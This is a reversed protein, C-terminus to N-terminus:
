FSDAEHEFCSMMNIYTKRDLEVRIPETIFFEESREKISKLNNESPSWICRGTKDLIIFIRMGDKIHWEPPNELFKEVKTFYQQDINSLKSQHSWVNDILLNKMKLFSLLDDEVSLELISSNINDKQNKKKLKASDKDFFYDMLYHNVALLYIKKDNM